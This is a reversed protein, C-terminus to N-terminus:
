RKKNKRELKRKARIAKKDVSVPTPNGRHGRHKILKTTHCLKEREGQM